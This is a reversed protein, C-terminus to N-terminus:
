VATDASPRVNGVCNMRESAAAGGSKEEMAAATCAPPASKETCSVCAPEKAERASSGAPARGRAGEARNSRGVSPHGAAAVSPSM